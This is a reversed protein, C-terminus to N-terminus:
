FGPHHYRVSRRASVLTKNSATTLTLTAMFNGLAINAETTPVVLDLSLDYPHRPALALLPAEAYPM